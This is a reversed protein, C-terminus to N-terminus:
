RSRAPRVEIRIPTAPAEHPSPADRGGRSWGGGGKRWGPGNLVPVQLQRRAKDALTEARLLGTVGSTARPPIAAAAHAALVLGILGVLTRM